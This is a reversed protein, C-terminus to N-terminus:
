TTLETSSSPKGPYRILHFVSFTSLREPDRSPHLYGQATIPDGDALQLAIERTRNHFTASLLLAGDTDEVHALFRAWATPKGRGDPRGEMPRTQLRGPLVLAPQKERSRTTEQLASTSVTPSGPNATEISPVPTAPTPPDGAVPHGPPVPNLDPEAAALLRRSAADLAGNAVLQQFIGDPSFTIRTVLGDDALAEVVRTELDIHVSRLKRIRDHQTSAVEGAM